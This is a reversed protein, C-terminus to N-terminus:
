AVCITSPQQLLLISSFSFFFCRALCLPGFASFFLFRCRLSRPIPSSSSARFLFGLAKVTCDATRIALVNWLHAAAIVSCATRQAFLHLGPVATQPQPHGTGPLLRPWAPHPGVRRSQQTAAVKSHDRGCYPAPVPPSELGETIGHSYINAPTEKNNKCILTCLTIKVSLSM